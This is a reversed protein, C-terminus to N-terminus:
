PRAFKVDVKKIGINLPNITPTPATTLINPETRDGINEANPTTASPKTDINLNKLGTSSMATSATLIIPLTIPTTSTGIRPTSAAANKAVM